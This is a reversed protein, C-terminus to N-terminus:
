KPDAPKSAEGPKPMFTIDVVGLEFVLASNPPIKGPRGEAGYAKDAPIVLRRQGGKQMGMVGEDWGKIVRGAGAIFGFPVRKEMNSDFQAGKLDKACGDYLWGTYWAIVGAKFEVPRGTGKEIETVVVDKPPPTCDSKKTEQAMAATMAAGAAALALWHKVRIGV